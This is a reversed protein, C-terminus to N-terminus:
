DVPNQEMFEVVSRSLLQSRNMSSKIKYEDITKLLSESMVINVRKNKEYSKVIKLDVPVPIIDAKPYKKKLNNMSSKPKVNAEGVALSGALADVANEFAEEFSDGFTEVYEVDPISVLVKKGETTFVGLYFQTM